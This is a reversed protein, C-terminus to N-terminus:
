LSLRYLNYRAQDEEWCDYQVFGHREAAKESAVNGQLIQTVVEGDFAMDRLYNQRMDHLPSSLRQGRYAPDIFLGSFIARGHQFAIESVGALAGDKFVGFVALADNDLYRAWASADHPDAGDLLAASEEPGYHQLCFDRFVSSHAAGLRCAKEESSSTFVERM